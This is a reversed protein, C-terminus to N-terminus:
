KSFNYKGDNWFFIKKLEQKPITGLAEPMNKQIHRLTVFEQGKHIVTIKTFLGFNNPM